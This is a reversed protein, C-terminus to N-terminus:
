EEEGPIIHLNTPEEGIDCYYRAQEIDELPWYMPGGDTEVLLGDAPRERLKRLVASEIARAFELYVGRAYHNMWPSNLLKDIEEDTLIM